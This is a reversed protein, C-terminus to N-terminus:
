WRHDVDVDPVAAVAGGAREIWRLERRAVGLQEGGVLDQPDVQASRGHVLLLENHNDLTNLAAEGGIEVSFKGLDQRTWSLRGITENRQAKQTQEFGGNQTEVLGDVRTALGGARSYPDPGEFSLVHFQM